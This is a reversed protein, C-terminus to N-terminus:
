DYNGVIYEAPHAFLLVALALIALFVWDPKLPRFSWACFKKRALFWVAACLIFVLVDLLWLSFLGFESLTLALWLTLSVSIAIPLFLREGVSLADPNRFFSRCFFYGPLFFFLPVFLPVLLIM